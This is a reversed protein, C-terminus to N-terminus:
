NAHTYPLYEGALYEIKNTKFPSFAQEFILRKGM